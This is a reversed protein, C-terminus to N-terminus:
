SFATALPEVDAFTEGFDSSSKLGGVGAAMWLNSQDDVALWGKDFFDGNFVYPGDQIDTDLDWRYVYYSELNPTTFSLTMGGSYMLNNIPDYATMPDFYYMDLIQSDPSISHHSWTAGGDKSHASQLRWIPSSDVTEVSSDTWGVVINNGDDSVRMTSEGALVGPKAVDVRSLAFYTSNDYFVDARLASSGQLYNKYTQPLLKLDTGATFEGLNMEILIRLPENVEVGAQDIVLKASHWSKQKVLLQALKIQFDFPQDTFLIGERLLDEAGIFDKKLLLWHAKSLLQNNKILVTIDDNFCHVNAALLGFTNEM